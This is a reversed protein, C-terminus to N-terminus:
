EARINFEKVLAQYRTYDSSALAQAKEASGGEPQMALTKMREAVDPMRLIEQVHENLLRVLPAPMNKPGLLMQWAGIRVGPFGAEATTPVQPMFPSRKADAVALPVLRGSDIYQQAPGLTGYMMPIHGGLIDAVAPVSGRYPVQTIKTGAERDFLEAMVHMPSGYGPSAYSKLKGSKAAAAMDKLSTIGANKDVIVYLSQSALQIIPTLDKSPDIQAGANNLVHPTITATNPAVLLTYGDPNAKAVYGTGITGAGGTRNDVVVPQGLRASLKEGILRGLVDTDGGAPFAVVITIPKTPYAPAQAWSSTLPLVCAALLGACLRLRHRSAPNKM